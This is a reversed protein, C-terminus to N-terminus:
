VLGVWIFGEGSIRGEIIRIKSACGRVVAFLLVMVVLSSVFGV